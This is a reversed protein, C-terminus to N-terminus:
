KSEHHKGGDGNWDVQLANYALISCSALDFGILLKGRDFPKADALAILGATLVTKVGAILGISPASGYIPNKESGGDSLIMQTTVEFQGLENSVGLFSRDYKIEDDTTM